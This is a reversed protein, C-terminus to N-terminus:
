AANSAEAEEVEREKAAYHQNAHREKPSMSRLEVPDRGPQCYMWEPDLDLVELAAATRECEDDYKYELNFTSITKAVKRTVAVRVKDEHELYFPRDCIQFRSAKNGLEVSGAYCRTWRYKTDMRGLVARDAQCWVQSGILHRQFEFTVYCERLGLDDKGTLVLNIRPHDYDGNSDSLLVKCSKVSYRIKEVTIAFRKSM